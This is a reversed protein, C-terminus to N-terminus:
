GSHEQNQHFLEQGNRSPHKECHWRLKRMDHTGEEIGHRLGREGKVGLYHFGTFDRHSLGEPVKPITLRSHGRNTRPRM